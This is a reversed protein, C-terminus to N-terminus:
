NQTTGFRRGQAPGGAELEPRLAAHNFIEGNYTIWQSSSENAMPQHGGALDVISLRRHGLYAVGDEHIGQGDPGRHHIAEMMHRLDAASASSPKLKVFGSIGCM